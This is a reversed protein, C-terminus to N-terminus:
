VIKKDKMSRCIPFPFSGCLYFNFNQKQKMRMTIEMIESKVVSYSNINRQLILTTILLKYSM